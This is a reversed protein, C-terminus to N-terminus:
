RTRVPLMFGSSLAPPWSRSGWLITSKLEAFATEIEWREHYLAVIEAAPCAPDLITTVLRYLERRRGADTTVTIAATLVRVEVPGMRSVYTGEPLRRCVPLNRGTKVRILLDAGTGAIAALLGQAAFNRDALV